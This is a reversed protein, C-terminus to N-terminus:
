YLPYNQHGRKKMCSEYYPDPGGPLYTTRGSRVAPMAQVREYAIRRCERADDALSISPNQDESTKDQAYTAEVLFLFIAIAGAAILTAHKMWDIRSRYDMPM